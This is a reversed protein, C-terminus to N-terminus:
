PKSRNSRIFKATRRPRTILDTPHTTIVIRLNRREEDDLIKREIPDLIRGM